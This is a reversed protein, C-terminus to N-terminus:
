SYSTCNGYALQQKKPAPSNPRTRCRVTRLLVEKNQELFAQTTKDGIVMMAVVVVM